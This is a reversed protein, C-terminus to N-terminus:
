QWDNCEEIQGCQECQGLSRIFSIYGIFEKEEDKLKQRTRELCNDCIFM